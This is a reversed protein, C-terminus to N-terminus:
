ANRSSIALGDGERVTPCAVVEIPFSLGTVLSRVITLQQFDKEGFYAVDPWILAFLKTVITAVGRFHGPRSAGEYLDGLSGPDVTVAGPDPGLMADPTPSFLIEAGYSAAIEADNLIDRPYRAFDAPDGFQLPNVFDSVCVLDCQTAAIAILSGHGAHLAGLTPVLGIRRGDRRAVGLVGILETVEAIRKM